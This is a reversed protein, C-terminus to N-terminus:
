KEVDVTERCRPFNPCGYFEKGKNEGKSVTRKVMPIGCKPCIPITLEEGSISEATEAAKIDIGNLVKDLSEKVESFTYSVRNKFRLLPLNSTEFVEEVFNDREIRSQKQHSTDDLEIGCIPQLNDTRCLLFDVHKRDIKNHYTSFGGRDRTKVFFIEKLGVKPCILIEEGVAQRLVKYFSLESPSLFDDRKAYPLKEKEINPLEQCEEHQKGTLKLFPFLVSLCGSNNNSM